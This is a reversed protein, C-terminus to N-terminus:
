LIVAMLYEDYYAGTAALKYNMKLCGEIEFGVKKYLSIAAQNDISVTLEIRTIGSATSDKIIHKLIEEGFGKRKHTTKVAFGGLYIIHAQRFAKRILRYTGVVEGNLKAAFLTETELLGHYIIKFEEKTMWDYTLFPNSADDMYLEYIADFDNTKVVDYTIQDRNM